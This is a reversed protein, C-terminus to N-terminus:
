ERRSSERERERGYAMGESFAEETKWRSKPGLLVSDNERLRGRQRAAPPGMVVRRSTCM